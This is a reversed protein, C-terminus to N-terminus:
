TKKCIVRTIAVFIIAIVLLPWKRASVLIKVLCSLKAITTKGVLLHGHALLHFLHEGQTGLDGVVSPAVVDFHSDEVGLRPLRLVLLHRPRVEVAVENPQVFGIGLGLPAKRRGRREEVCLIHALRHHSTAVAHRVLTPVSHLNPRNAAVLAPRREYATLLEDAKEEQQGVRSHGGLERAKEM